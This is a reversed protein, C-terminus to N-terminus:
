NQWEEDYRTAWVAYAMERLLFKDWQWLKGAKKVRLMAVVVARCRLVGREFAELQRTIYGRYNGRVTSLRVGNAVLVRATSDGHRAANLFVLDLPANGVVTQARLDAGAACLLELARPEMWRAAFHAPTWKWMVDRSNVDVKSQLLAVTAPVNPGMCACHLLTRGDRSREAWRERPLKALLKMLQGHDSAERFAVWDIPPVEAM